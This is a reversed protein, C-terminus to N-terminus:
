QVPLTVTQGKNVPIHSIKQDGYQEAGSTNLGTVPVIASPVPSGSPVTIKISTGGSVLSATVGSQNYANRAQMSQGLVHQEKSLV